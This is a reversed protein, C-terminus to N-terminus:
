RLIALAELIRRAIEDPLRDLEKQARKPLIVAYSMEAQAVTQQRLGGTDRIRRSRNRRFSPIKRRPLFPHRRQGRSGRATARVHAFGAFGWGAPRFRGRYIARERGVSNEHSCCLSLPMVACIIM